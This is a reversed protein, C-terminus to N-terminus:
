YCSVNLLLDTPLKTEGRWNWQPTCSFPVVNTVVCSGFHSIPKRQFKQFTVYTSPEVLGNASEVFPLHLACEIEVVAKFSSNDKESIISDLDEDITKNNENADAQFSTSPVVFTTRRDLSEDTKEAGVGVSRCMETPLDFDERPNTYVSNGSLSTDSSQFTAKNCDPLKEDGKPASSINETQAAQSSSVVKPVNLAQTLQDVITHITTGQPIVSSDIPTDAAKDKNKYDKVTTINTQCEQNKFARATNMCIASAYSSSSSDQPTNCKREENVLTICSEESSSEFYQPPVIPANRLGRTIELLAIQDSTGLAVLALLQGRPEGNIPDIIPIWGDVSIVPM